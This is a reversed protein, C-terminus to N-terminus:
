MFTAPMPPVYESSRLFSPLCILIRSLLKAFSLVGVLTIRMEVQLRRALVWDCVGFSVKANLADFGRVRWFPLLQDDEVGYNTHYYLAYEDDFRAHENWCLNTFLSGKVVHISLHSFPKAEKGGKRLARFTFAKRDSTTRIMMLQNGLNRLTCGSSDDVRELRQLKRALESGLSGDFHADFDMM